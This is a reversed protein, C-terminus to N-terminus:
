WESVIATGPSFGLGAMVRQFGCYWSFVGSSGGSASLLLVLLFGWVQWWESVVATSPSFGLGAVVRHCGSYWSFVGSRGCSASLRLVM